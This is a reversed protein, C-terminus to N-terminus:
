QRQISRLYDVLRSILMDVRAREASDDPNTSDYFRWGWVPMDRPGHAPREARGDIIRRVDEGPFEGGDRFAIRTLDPVGAKVLPAVPGDGRGTIGHCSACWREFLEPGSLDTMRRSNPETSICGALVACVAALLVRLTM